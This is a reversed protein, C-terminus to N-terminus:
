SDIVEQRWRLDIPDIPPNSGQSVLKQQKRFRPNMYNKTMIRMIKNYNTLISLRPLDEKDGMFSSYTTSTAM